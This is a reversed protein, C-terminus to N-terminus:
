PATATAVAKLNAASADVLPHESAYGAHERAVAALYAGESIVPEVEAVTGRPGIAAVSWLYLALGLGLAVPALVLGFRRTGQSRRQQLWSLFGARAPQRRSLAVAVPLHRRLQRAFDPSTELKPLAQLVGVTRTLEESLMACERCSSLHLRVQEELSISLTEDAYDALLKRVRSCKM